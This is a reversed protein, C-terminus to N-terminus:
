NNNIKFILGITGYHNWPSTNHNGPENNEGYKYTKTNVPLDFEPTTFTQRIVLGCYRFKFNFTFEHINLQRMIQDGRLVYPDTPSGPDEDVAHKFVGYGELMSNHQVYRFLLKYNFLFDAHNRKRQNNFPMNIGGSSKFSKTCFNVGISASTMDHGVKLELPISINVYEMWKFRSVHTQENIGLKRKTFSTIARSLFWNKSLVMLEITKEYSVAVRGGAAIQSDWGQPKVSGITVDRHITSQISNPSTSGISGIKFQSFIRFRGHRYIAYKARGFYTISAYPRDSSDVSTGAKFISTDRLYPTYGEGGVFVSQYSYWSRSNPNWWNDNKLKTFRMKLWDTTVEIRFAGTLDRDENLDQRVHLFDNTHEAYITKVKKNSTETFAYMSFDKSVVEEVRKRVLAIVEKLVYASLNTNFYNVESSDLRRELVYELWTITETHSIKDLYYKLYHEDYKDLSDINLTPLLEQDIIGFVINKNQEKILEIQKKLLRESKNKKLSLNVEEIEKNLRNTNDTTLGGYRNRLAAEYSNFDGCFIRTLHRVYSTDFTRHDIDYLYILSDIQIIRNVIMPDFMGHTQKTSLRTSQAKAGFCIIAFFYIVPLYSKMNNSNLM